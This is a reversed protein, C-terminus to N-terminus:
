LRYARRIRTAEITFLGNAEPIYQMGKISLPSRQQNEFRNLRHPAPVVLVIRIGDSHRRLQNCRMAYQHSDTM